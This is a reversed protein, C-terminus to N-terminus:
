TIYSLNLKILWLVNNSGYSAEHFFGRLVVSLKGLRVCVPSSYTDKLISNMHSKFFLIECAVLSPWVFSMVIFIVAFSSLAKFNAAFLRVPM